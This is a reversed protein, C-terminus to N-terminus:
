QVSIQFLSSLKVKGRYKGYCECQHRELNCYGHDYGSCNNPCKPVDCALGTYLADCTCVGDVCIGHGSCNLHSYRSPCSNFRFYFYYLAKSYVSSLYILFHWFVLRYTINFGTMNYAVDSYFHILASGSHAVVEPIRRVSYNGKYM